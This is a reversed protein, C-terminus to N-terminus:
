YQDPSLSDENVILLDTRHRRCVAAFWEFGLRVLRDKHAIILRRVHGLEMHEMLRNFQKRQYNLASGIEEVWEDPENGHRECSDRLAGIRWITAHQV